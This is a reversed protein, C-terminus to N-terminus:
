KRHQFKRGATSSPLHKTSCRRTFRLSRRRASASGPTQQYSTFSSYCPPLVPRLVEYIDEAVYYSPWPALLTRLVDDFRNEVRHPSSACFLLRILRGCLSSRQTAWGAVCMKNLTHYRCLHASMSWLPEACSNWLRLVWGSRAAFELM